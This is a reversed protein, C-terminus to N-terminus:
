ISLVDSEDRGREGFDRGRVHGDRQRNLRVFVAVRRLSSDGDVILPMRSHRRLEVRARRRGHNQAGNLADVFVESLARGYRRGSEHVRHVRLPKAFLEVLRHRAAPRQALVALRPAARLLPPPM